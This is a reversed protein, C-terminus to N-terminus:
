AGKVVFFRKNLQKMQQLIQDLHGSYNFSGEVANIANPRNKDGTKISPRLESIWPREPKSAPPPEVPAPESPQVRQAPPRIPQRQVRQTVPKDRLDDLNKRADNVAQALEQERDKRRQNDVARQERRGRKENEALRKEIREREKIREREPRTFRVRDGRGVAAMKEDIQQDLEVNKKRERRERPSKALKKWDDEPNFAFKDLSKRLKVGAQDLKRMMADLRNNALDEAQNRQASILQKQATLIKQNKDREIQALSASQLRALQQQTAGAKRYEELQKALERKKLATESLTLKALQDYLSQQKKKREEDIAAYGAAELDDLRASQEPSELGAKKYAERYSAVQKAWEDKKLETENKTLKALHASVEEQLRKQEEARFKEAASLTEARQAGATAKYEELEERAAQYEESTKRQSMLQKRLKELNASAQEIEPEYAKGITNKTGIPARNKAEEQAQRLSQLREFAVRIKKETDELAAIEADARKQYEGTSTDIDAIKGTIKEKEAATHRGALRKELAERENLLERIKDDTAALEELRQDSGAQAKAITDNVSKLEAELAPTSLSLEEDTEKPLKIESLKALRAELEEKDKEAKALDYKPMSPKIAGDGAAASDIEADTLGQKKLILRTFVEDLKLLEGLVSGIKFGIFATALVAGAVGAAVGVGKLATSLLGVKVSAAAAATGVAGTAAASAAAAAAQATHAAALQTLGGALSMIIARSKMAVGIWLAGGAIAKIEKQYKIRWLTIDKLSNAIEGIAKATDRVITDLEGSQSMEDLAASFEELAASLAPIAEEGIAIGTNRIAATVVSWRGALNQSQKEMLGFYKGGENSLSALAEDLLAFSLQGKSGMDLIEQTTRGLTAALAQMVPVGRESMQNLEEAQVKGKNAAKAYIAVMDTLPVQAGASINGLTTLKASLEETAVGANMLLRGSKIVEANDFPTYDAFRNLDGIVKDALTAGGLMVEFATRTQQMEAGLKIIDSVLEKVGIGAISLGAIAAFSNRIEGVVGSTSQKLVQMESRYQSIDAQFISKFKQAPM